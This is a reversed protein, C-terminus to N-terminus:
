TLDDAKRPRWSVSSPTYNITYLPVEQDGYNYSDIGMIEDNYVCVCLTCICTCSNVYNAFYM